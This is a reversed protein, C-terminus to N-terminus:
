ASATGGPVVAVRSSKSPHKLPQARERTPNKMSQESPRCSPQWRYDEVLDAM